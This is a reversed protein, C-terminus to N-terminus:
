HFSGVFAGAPFNPIVPLQPRDQFNNAAERAGSSLTDSCSQVDVLSYGTAKAIDEDAAGDRQQRAVEDCDPHTHIAGCGAVAVVSIWGSM